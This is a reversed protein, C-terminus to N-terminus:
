IKKEEYEHISGIHESYTCWDGIDDTGRGSEDRKYIPKRMTITFGSIMSIMECLRDWYEASRDGWMGSGEDSIAKGIGCVAKEAESVAAWIRPNQYTMFPM